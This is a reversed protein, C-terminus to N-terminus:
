YTSNSHSQSHLHQRSHTSKEGRLRKAKTKYGITSTIAIRSVWESNKSKNFLYFCLLTISAFVQVIYLFVLVVCCLVSDCGRLCLFMRVIGFNRISTKMLISHISPCPCTTIVYELTVHVAITTDITKQNLDKNLWSGSLLNSPSSNMFQISSGIYKRFHIVIHRM